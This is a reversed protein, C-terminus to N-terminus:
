PLGPFVNSFGALFFIGYGGLVGLAKNTLINLSLSLNVGGTGSEMDEIHGTGKFQSNWSELSEAKNKFFLKVKAANSRYLPSIKIFILPARASM